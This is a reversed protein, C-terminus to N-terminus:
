PRRRREPKAWAPWRRPREPKVFTVMGRETLWINATPAATLVVGPIEYVRARRRRM